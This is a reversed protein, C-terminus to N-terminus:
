RHETANHTNRIRVLRVAGAELRSGRRDTGFFGGAGLMLRHRYRSLRIWPTAHPMRTSHRRQRCTPSRVSRSSIRRPTLGLWDYGEDFTKAAPVAATFAHPGLAGVLFSCTLRKAVSGFAPTHVACARQWNPGDRV